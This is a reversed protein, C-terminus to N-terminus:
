FKATFTLLATRDTGPVSRGRDSPILQDNTVDWEWVYERAASAALALREYADQLAKRPSNQPGADRSVVLVGRLDPDDLRNVAVLERERGSRTRAQVFIPTGPPSRLVERFAVEVRAMDDAHILPM